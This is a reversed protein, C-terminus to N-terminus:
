EMDSLHIPKIQYWNKEGKEESAFSNCIKSNQPVRMPIYKPRKFKSFGSSNFSLSDRM